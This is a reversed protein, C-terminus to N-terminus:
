VRCSNSGASNPQNTLDQFVQIWRKAGEAPSWLAAREQSAQSALQIRQPDQIFYILAETLANVDGAPFIQGNVGPQVIDHAAGVADSCIIPLGAGLAQNVVVGWGDYRSPLVFLDAQQFLSHLNDPDQFGAYEIQSRTEESLPELMQPLEAERGVLLLRAKLGCRIIHDFATLLLDVGKREIMQGCFLITIPDHPRQPIEAAFKSLNCYYPINYTPKNPFRQRYDQEACTGIAVIARCRNLHFELRKQLLGKLSSSGAVIKEGWFVCPLNQAHHLLVWQATVNMYGNLIILDASHLNPWHWNLHFRSAGWVLHTGGLVQEYPQLPKQPWPSDPSAPELYYVQLDVNPCRSLEYFLDRQYPSPVVSYFIVKTRQLIVERLLQHQAANSLGLINKYLTGQVRDLIPL